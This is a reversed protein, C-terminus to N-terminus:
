IPPENIVCAYDCVLWFGKAGFKIMNIIVKIVHSNVVCVIWQYTTKDQTHTHTHTHQKMQIHTHTHTHSTKTEREREDVRRIHTHTHQKM